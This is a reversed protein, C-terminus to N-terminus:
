QFSCGSDRLSDKLLNFCKRSCRSAFRDLQYSELLPCLLLTAPKTVATHKTVEDISSRLILDIQRGISLLNDFQVIKTIGVIIECREKFAYFGVVDIERITGITHKTKRLVAIPM